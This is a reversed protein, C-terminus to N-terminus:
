RDVAGEGDATGMRLMGLNKIEVDWACNILVALLETTHVTCYIAARVYLEERSRLICLISAGVYMFMNAPRSRRKTPPHATGLRIWGLCDIGMMQLGRAHFGSIGFGSSNKRKGGADM